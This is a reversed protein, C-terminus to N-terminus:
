DGPANDRELAESLWTRATVEQRRVSIVLDLGEQVLEERESAARAEDPEVHTAKLLFTEVRRELEALRDLIARDRQRLDAVRSELELDEAEIQAFEGSHDNEFRARIHIAAQKLTERVSNTWTELEGPVFPFELEMELKQLAGHLPEPIGTPM